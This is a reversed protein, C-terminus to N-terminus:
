YCVCSVIFMMLKMRPGETCQFAVLENVTQHPVCLRMGCSGCFTPWFTRISICDQTEWRMLHSTLIPSCAANGIAASSDGCPRVMCLRNQRELRCYSNQNTVRSSIGMGCFTSCTEWETSWEPCNIPVMQALGSEPSSVHGDCRWEPCCQGPIPIQRPFPCTPTPLQVDNSCLPVCTVGGDVCTCQLKCGLQFTEGDKYMKGDMDCSDGDNYNCTGSRGGDKSTSYDCVLEQTPDCRYIRDCPEGLRRACIKCCGCGDLLLPVGSPCRPPTWSCTCSRPCLQALIQSLAVFLLLCGTTLM